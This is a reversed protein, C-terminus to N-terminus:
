GEVRHVAPEFGNAGANGDRIFTLRWVQGTTQQLLIRPAIDKSVVERFEARRSQGVLPMETSVTEPPKRLRPDPWSHSVM